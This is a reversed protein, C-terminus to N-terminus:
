NKGKHQLYSLNISWMVTGDLPSNQVEMKILRGSANGMSATTKLTKPKQLEGCPSTIRGGPQEWPDRGGASARSHLYKGPSIGM